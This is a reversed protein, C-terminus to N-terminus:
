WAKLNWFHISDNSKDNVKALEIVHEFLLLVMKGLDVLYELINMRPNSNAGTM